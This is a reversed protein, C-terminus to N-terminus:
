CQHAFKVKHDSNHFKAMHLRIVFMTGGSPCIQRKQSVPVKKKLPTKWIHGLISKKRDDNTPEALRLAGSTVVLFRVCGVCVLLLICRTPREIRFHQGKRTPACRSRLMLAFNNGLACVPSKCLPRSRLSPFSRSIDVFLHFPALCPNDAM